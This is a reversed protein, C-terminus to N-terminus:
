EVKKLFRDWRPEDKEPDWSWVIMSVRGIINQFPISGYHRSDRSNNRNDGLVFFSDESVTLPGFADNQAPSEQPNTKNIYKEELEHYDVFVIGNTVRIKEGPLGIIRKVFKTKELPSRFAVIAGRKIEKLSRIKDVLFRDGILITPKM